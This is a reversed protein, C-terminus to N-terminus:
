TSGPWDLRIPSARPAGHHVSGLRRGTRRLARLGLIDTMLRAFTDAIEAIGLRPQDPKFSLTYGPLSPAVVTFADAPDGGHNGPDTLMPILKHFEWFSGPSGHSLLLPLRSRGSAASRCSTSRCAGSRCRSSPCRTSGPRMPAGTM